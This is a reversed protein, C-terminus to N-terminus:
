HQGAPNGIPASAKDQPKGLPPATSSDDWDRPPRPERGAMIEKIQEEDITEYKILADAMSQLKDLNTTLIQRARQFNSDILRRVERLDSM